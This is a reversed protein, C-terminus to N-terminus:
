APRPWTAGPATRCPSLFCAPSTPCCALTFSTGFGDAGGGHELDEIAIAYTGADTFRWAAGLRPESRHRQERRGGHGIRRPSPLRRDLRAGLPRAVVQFVMEEGARATFRYADVDGAAGLSGVLAAPLTIGQPTGPDNPEQEKTEALASVAFRLQNSVGLPTHLRFGHVGHPVEKAITVVATLAFKRAKDDIPADTRVVGKPVVMKEVPMEEVATIRASLGPESFILAPRTASTPARSRSPSRRGASHRGDPHAEAPDPPGDAGM